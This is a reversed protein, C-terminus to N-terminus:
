ENQAKFDSDRALFDMIGKEILSVAQAYNYGLRQPGHGERWVHMWGLPNKNSYYVEGDIKRSRLLAELKIKKM